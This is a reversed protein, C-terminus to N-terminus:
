AKENKEKQKTWFWFICSSMMPALIISAIFAFMYIMAHGISSTIRYKIPIVNNDIVDYTSESMYTNSYFFRIRQKNDTTEIVEITHVDGVDLTIANEDLHFKYAGAKEKVKSLRMMEYKGEKKGLVYFRPADMKFNSTVAPAQAFFHAAIMCLAILLINVISKM